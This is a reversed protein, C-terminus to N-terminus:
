RQLTELFRGLKGPAVTVNVDPGYLQSFWLRRVGAHKRFVRPEMEEYELYLFYPKDPPRRLGRGVKQASEVKSKGGCANVVAALNPLNVGVNLIGSAILVPLKGSDLDLLRKELLDQDSEGNVFPAELVQALRHGQEIRDVLVLVSKFKAARLESVDAAVKLHRGLNYVFQENYAGAYSNSAWRTNDPVEQWLVVPRALYKEEFARRYDYEYVAPGLVGEMVLEKGDERLWTGSLGFRHVASVLAKGLAEYTEAAAGHAEDCVWVDVDKLRAVLDKAKRKLGSGVSQITAVVVRRGLDSQGDGYVGVTEGLAAAIDERTQRMLRLSPVTVLVKKGAYAKVLAASILSKGCGTPIKAVGRGRRVLAGVAEVQYPRLKAGRLTVHEAAFKELGISKFSLKPVGAEELAAQVRPLLGSPFARTKEDYLRHEEVFTRGYGGKKQITFMCTALLVALVEPSPEEQLKATTAGVVLDQPKVPM